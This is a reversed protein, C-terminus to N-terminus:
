SSLCPYLLGGNAKVAGQVVAARQLLMGVDEAELDPPMEAALDCWGGAGVADQVAADVQQVLAPGVVVSSLPIAGPFREALRQQPNPIGSRSAVAFSLYSHNCRITPPHHFCWMCQYSSVRPPMRTM